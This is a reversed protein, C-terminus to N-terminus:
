CWFRSYFKKVTTLKKLHVKLKESIDKFIKSKPIDHFISSIELRREIIQGNKTLSQLQLVYAKFIKIDRSKM